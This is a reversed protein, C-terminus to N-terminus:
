DRLGRALGEIDPMGPHNSDCAHALGRPTACRATCRLICFIRGFERRTQRCILPFAPQPPTDYGIKPTGREDASAAGAM